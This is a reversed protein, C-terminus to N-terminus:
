GVYPGNGGREGLMFLFSTLAAVVFGAEIRDLLGEYVSPLCLKLVLGGDATQGGASLLVVKKVTSTGNRLRDGNRKGM